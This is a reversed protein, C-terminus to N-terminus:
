ALIMGPMWIRRLLRRRLLSTLPPLRRHLRLKLSASPRLAPASSM